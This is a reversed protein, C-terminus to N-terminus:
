EWEQGRLGQMVESMAEMLPALEMKTEASTKELYARFGEKTAREVLNDGMERMRGMDEATVGQEIERLGKEVFQKLQDPPMGDLAEFWKNMSEVITLDVFLAQEYASLRRFFDEGVRQERAREREAFDLQNFMESVKRILREREQRESLQPVVDTDSWDVFDAGTIEAAVSEATVRFSGFTFQAVAVVGWVIAVVTVGAM